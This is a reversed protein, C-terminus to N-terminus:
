CKPQQCGGVPGNPSGWGGDDGRVTPTGAVLGFVVAVVAVARALWEWNRPLQM